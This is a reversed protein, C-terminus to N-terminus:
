RGRPKRRRGGKRRRSAPPAEAAREAAIQEEEERRAAKVGYPDASSRRVWLVLLLIGLVVVAGIVVVWAWVPVAWGRQEETLEEDILPTDQAVAAARGEASPLHLAPLGEPGSQSGEVLAARVQDPRLQPHQARLLAAAGAVMAAAYQPGTVEAQDLEPGATVLDAGPATLEIEETDPSDSILEGNEDTGAVALVSPDEGAGAPGVVLAGNGVAERTAEALDDGDGGTLLIVQSGERAAFRVADAQRDGTPLVLLGAEPAVGLVGGDADMGHGHGAVLAAAANGEEVDGDNGGFQTDLDVNDVLDPHEEDVSPGPLAVTAGQGRTQEWMEQAGISQLGWQEPRFDAIGDAAVPVTTLGLVATATVAACAAAAGGRVRLTHTRNRSNGGLM